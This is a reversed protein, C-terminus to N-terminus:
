DGNFMEQGIMRDHGSREAGGVEGRRDLVAPEGVVDDASLVLVAVEVHPLLLDEPEGLLEIGLRDVDVAAERRLPGEAPQDAAPPVRGPERHAQDGVV